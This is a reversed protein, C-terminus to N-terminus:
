PVDCIPYLLSIWALIAPFGHLTYKWDFLGYIEQGPSISLLVGSLVACGRLIVAITRPSIERNREQIGNTEKKILPIEKTRPITAKCFFFDFLLKAQAPIM